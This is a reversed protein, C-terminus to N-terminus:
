TAPDEQVHPRMRHPSRAPTLRIELSRESEPLVPRIDRNQQRWANWAEVGQQLIQLHETPAM